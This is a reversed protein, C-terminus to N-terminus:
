VPVEDCVAVHVMVGECVAVHVAVAVVEKVCVRDARGV